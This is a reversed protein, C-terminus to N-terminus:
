GDSSRIEKPTPAIRVRICSVAGKRRMSNWHSMPRGMLWKSISAARIISATPLVLTGYNEVMWCETPAAHKM